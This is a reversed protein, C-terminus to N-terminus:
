EVSTLFMTAGLIFRIGSIPISEEMIDNLAGFQLSIETFINYNSNLQWEGGLLIESIFVSKTYQFFDKEANVSVLSGGAGFYWGFSESGAFEGFIDITLYKFKFWTDLVFPLEIENKYYRYTYRANIVFSDSIHILDHRVFFEYGWGPQFQSESQGSKLLGPHLLGGSAGIGVQSYGSQTLVFVLIGVILVKNM